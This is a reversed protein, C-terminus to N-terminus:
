PRKFAAELDMAGHIVRVIRVPLPKAEYIVLYKYVAIVRLDADGLEVRTHGIGPMRSILDFQDLLKSLVRDASRVSRHAIFTYIEQVDREAAPAITYGRNM